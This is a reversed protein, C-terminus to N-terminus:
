GPMAPAKTPYLAEFGAGQLAEWGSSTNDQTCGEGGAREPWAAGPVDRPERGQPLQHHNEM